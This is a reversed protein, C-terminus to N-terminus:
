VGDYLLVVRSEGKRDMRVSAPENRLRIRIDDMLGQSDQCRSHDVATVADTELILIILCYSFIAKRDAVALSRSPQHDLCKGPIKQETCLILYIHQFLDRFM